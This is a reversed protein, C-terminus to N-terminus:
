KEKKSQNLPLKTYKRPQVEEETIEDELSLYYEIAKKEKHDKVLKYAIAGAFALAGAGIAMKKVTKKEM